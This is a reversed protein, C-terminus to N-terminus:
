HIISPLRYNLQHNNESEARKKEQVVQSREPQHTRILRTVRLDRALHRQPM